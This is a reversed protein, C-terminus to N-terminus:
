PTIKRIIYNNSDSVYVNGAGDVALYTPDSFTAASGPGNAFGAAGTGALTSVVGAPTIERIANNGGDAVYVNGVSDVAVGIPQEFTASSGPGNAFGTSGTGAFTSVVGAPTIERIVNNGTDAVYVNGASDVAVGYPGRFTASTGPGNTYGAAGTGALTTVVGAPTIKRIANNNLDAVYVDGATDVAVGYPGYFSAGAGAGNTFGATGSGALTSV